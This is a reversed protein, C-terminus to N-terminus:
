WVKALRNSFLASVGIVLVYIPYATFVVAILVPTVPTNFFARFQRIFLSDVILKVSAALAVVPWAEGPILVWLIFLLNMGSVLAQTKLIEADRYSSTKSAWRRRQRFFASWSGAGATEVMSDSEFVAVIKGKNRKVAHLLFVDDGSLETDNLQHSLQTFVSRRFALNAGNAMFPRGVAAGAMGSAVLTAFELQELKGFFTSATSIRVAGILLDAGTASFCAVISSIWRNGPRCDADTTLVLEGTACSVGQRLAHKKGRKESRLVTVNTHTVAFNCLLDCTADTSHDDVLIFEVRRYDQQKLAELLPALRNEEDHFCVVVSVLVDEKREPITQLSGSKWGGILGIMWRVYLVVAVGTFLSLLWGAM